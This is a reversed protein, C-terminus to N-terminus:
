SEYNIKPESKKSIKKIPKENKVEEIIEDESIKLDDLKSTKIKQLVKKKVEKKIQKEEIKQKDRNQKKLNKIELMREFNAKRADTYVYEAKKRPKKTIKIESNDIYDNESDSM